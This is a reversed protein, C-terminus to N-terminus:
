RKAAPSLPLTRGPSGQGRVFARIADPDFRVLGGVQLSPLLGAQARQYVWSRSVKLFRAVDNVDWLGTPFEGQTPEAM